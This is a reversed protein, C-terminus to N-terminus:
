LVPSIVCILFSQSITKPLLQRLIGTMYRHGVNVQNFPFALPHMVTAVVGFTYIYLLM